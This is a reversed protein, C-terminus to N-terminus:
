DEVQSLYGDSSPPQNQEVSPPRFFGKLDSVALSLHREASCFVSATGRLHPERGNGLNITPGFAMLPRCHRRDAVILRRYCSSTAERGLSQGSGRCSAVIMGSFWALESEADEAPWVGVALV